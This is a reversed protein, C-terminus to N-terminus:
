SVYSTNGTDTTTTTSPTTIYYTDFVVKITDGYSLNSNAAATKAADYVYFTSRGNSATEGVYGSKTSSTTGTASDYVTESTGQFLSGISGSDTYADSSITSGSTGTLAAQQTTTLSPYGNAFDSSSLTNYNSNVFSVKSTAAKAVTVYATGGYVASSLDSTSTVTYGSPANDKAFTELSEGATNKDSGVTQGEATSTGSAAIFKNSATSIINGSSDRYVVTVSNASTATPEANTQSVNSAKVWAGVLGNTTSGNVSAIKYWTDGERSTKEAASFTFTADAYASTSTLTSGNVKARGIKYEAYSPQAYFLTNSSSSTSASLKYTVTSSPATASSTTDYTKIGGAFASTSKGGYIWGRYTGDFSVVKYYVSGHSTVAVKYARFNAKGSTSKALKKATTKTVVLKAGKSTGVKSYIANTGTLTVNRSSATTTLTKDSKITAYSKASATTASAAGAGVLSMVALGLYLSKKMGTKM